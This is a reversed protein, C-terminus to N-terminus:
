GHSWYYDEGLEIVDGGLILDRGMGDWDVQVWKLQPNSELEAVTGDNEALEHALEGADRFAGIYRDRMQAALDEVEEATDPLSGENDAYNIFQDGHEDIAAAIAAVAEPSPNEGLSRALSGFGDYDHFAWEEAGPIPSTRLVEEIGERLEDADTAEVWNGHLKGNNYAALCAVWVKPTSISTDM